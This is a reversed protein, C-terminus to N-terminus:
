FRRSWAEGVVDEAVLVRVEVVSSVSEVVVMDTVGGVVAAVSMGEGKGVGKSLLKDYLKVVLLPLDHGAKILSM